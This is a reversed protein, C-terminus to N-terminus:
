SNPMSQDHYVGDVVVESSSSTPAAHGAVPWARRSPNVTLHVVAILVGAVVLPTWAQYVAAAM